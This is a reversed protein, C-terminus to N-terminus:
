SYQAKLFLQSYHAIARVENEDIESADEVVGRFKQM